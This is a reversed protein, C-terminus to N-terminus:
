FHRDRGIIATTMGKDLAEQVEPWSMRELHLNESSM